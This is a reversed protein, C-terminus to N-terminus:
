RQLSLWYRGAYQRAANEVPLKTLGASAFFGEADAQAKVLVGAYGGELAADRARLLLQRGLGLRQFKPDVYLGHLLLGRQRGPVDERSAEDWAAVAIVGTHESEIFEVTLHQLDAADYYYSPLSLRKVREPLKWTMVAAAIVRNIAPLDLATAPRINM